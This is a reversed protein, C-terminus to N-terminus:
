ATATLRHPRRVRRMMPEVSVVDIDQPLDFIYSRVNRPSLTSALRHLADEVSEDIDAAQLGALGGEIDRQFARKRASNCIQEFVRGSALDRAAIVRTNGDRFKLRCLENGANPSYIRSVAREILETRTNGAAKGNPHFPLDHPLHINFIERASQLDPRDVQIEIDSLRELLAPDILDKRNTASIIAIRGRSEFGDLEALLAALFKDGHTGLSQGRIRGISEIEDMFLVGFGDGISRKMWEFTERINRTTMGVYPNEWQGPKVVAFKCTRGSLRQVQASAVRAMLTKGCGPPGVMLITQRDPLKYSKAKDPEILAATLAALVGKLNERNGGVMSPDVDPADEVLYEQTSAKEIKEYAMWTSKDWRLQDGQELDVDDLGAGADVVLEEERSKVVIRNFDVYRDFFATEGVQPMGILSAAVLINLENNLYIEDGMRFEEDNIEDAISVLRPRGGFWVMARPGMPTDVRNRFVAPHWPPATLEDLKSRLKTQAEQAAMLGARLRENERLLVDDLQAAFEPSEERAQQVLQRKQAINLAGEGTATIQQLIEIHRMMNERSPM